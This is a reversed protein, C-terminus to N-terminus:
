IVKDFELFYKPIYDNELCNLYAKLHSLIDNQVKLEDDAHLGSKFRKLTDKTYFEYHFNNNENAGARRMMEYKNIDNFVKDVEKKVVEVKELILNIEEQKIKEEISKWYNAVYRKLFSLANTKNDLIEDIKKNKWYSDMDSKDVFLALDDIINMLNFCRSDDLPCIYTTYKKRKYIINGDLDKFCIRTVVEIEEDDFTLDIAKKIYIVVGDYQGLCITEDFDKIIM